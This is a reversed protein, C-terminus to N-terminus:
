VRLFRRFTLQDLSQFFDVLKLPIQLGSFSKCVYIQVIQMNKGHSSSKNALQENGIESHTCVRAGDATMPNTVLFTM